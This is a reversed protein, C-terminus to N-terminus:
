RSTVRDPDSDPLAARFFALELEMARRYARQAAPEHAAHADVLRELTGALAAFAPDAYATVWGDYPDPGAGQAALGQGLWAYLRLCPALAACTTGLGATAATALLFETYALTASAPEVDGTVGWRAAYSAHLRLEERVGTLLDALELLTATDPSAALALAYARAFGALFHADQAVYAAFVPVPLTGDALGRVFATQRCQAALDASEQWLRSSLTPSM